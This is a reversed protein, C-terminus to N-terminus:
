SENNILYGLDGTTLFEVDPWNKLIEKLLIKLQNLGRQRNSKNLTGIYNVRHSSIIAPKHCLFATKIDYLCSDIWDKGQLSPEFFCNRTIYTIGNMDKQGLWHFSKKYRGKGIPEQQIKSVSRFRIGNKALTKNLINNFPGNPPVFYIARYGFLKEFLDLGERIINKHYELESYETFLFAAQFDVGPLHEPVFGWVNENFAHLTQTDGKQLANLWAFVNLHERGHMQPIFIKNHIGEFWLKFSNECGSYKKLTETFPEYYYERYNVSKIKTFDPNAVITVPTFVAHNQNKDKFSTLVEFLLALDDESELSDNQNYRLADRDTLNIGAKKLRNYAENSPMRISGWDDSEFVVIKRKTRWGPLNSLQKLTKRLIKM